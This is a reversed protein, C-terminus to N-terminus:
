PVPISKSIKDSYEALSESYERRLPLKCRAATAPVPLRSGEGFAAHSIFPSNTLGRTTADWKSSPGKENIKVNASSKGFLKDLCKMTKSDLQCLGFPDGFMTPSDGAYAYFNNGGSFEIPDESIFRAISPEYYRARYYYQGANDNERGTYEYSNNNATGTMATNGFPESTFQTM